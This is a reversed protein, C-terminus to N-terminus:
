PPERRAFCSCPVLSRDGDLVMGPNLTPLFARATAPDCLRPQDAGAPDGPAGGDTVLCRVSLRPTSARHLDVGVLLGLVPAVAGQDRGPAQFAFHGLGYFVPMSGIFEIPRAIRPGSGVVMDYGADAFLQAWYRQQPTIPAYNDGWHVTAIVWDAGAGRALDAGRQVTEPSLVMTGPTGVGARAGSGDGLAVLGVTGAESRLLLPQEARALDPGAGLVALGAAEGHRVTDVLGVPGTDFAHSNAVTIADVGAHALVGAVEPRAAHVFKKAPNWPQTLLSMPAEFTAVVFGATLAPRIRALLRDAGGPDALVQEQDGLYTGGVFQVSLTGEPGLAVNRNIAPVVPIEGLAIHAGVIGSAFVAIAIFVAILRRDRAVDVSRRM